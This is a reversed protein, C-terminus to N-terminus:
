QAVVGGVARTPVINWEPYAMTGRTQLDIILAGLEHLLDNAHDGPDGLVVDHASYSRLFIAIPFILLRGLTDLFGRERPVHGFAIPSFGNGRAEIVVGVDGRRRADRVAVIILLATLIGFVVALPVLILTGVTALACILILVALGLSVRRSVIAFVGSVDELRTQQFLWSAKQTGRPYVQAYFIVRADTVYVTGHGRQRKILGKRLTVVDYAKLVQEDHALRFMPTQQVPVGLSM